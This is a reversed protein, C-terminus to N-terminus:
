GLGRHRRRQSPRKRKHARAALRDAVAHYEATPAGSYVSANLFAYDSSVTFYLIAAALAAIAVVMLLARVWTRWDRGPGFALEDLFSM